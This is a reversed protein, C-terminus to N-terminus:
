DPPICCGWVNSAIGYSNKTQNPDRCLLLSFRTKLGLIEHKCLWSGKMKELVLIGSCSTKLANDFQELQDLSFSFFHPFIHEYINFCDYSIYIFLFYSEMTVGKTAELKLPTALLTRTNLFVNIGRKRKEKCVLTCLTQICSSMGM